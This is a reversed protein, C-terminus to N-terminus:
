SSLARRVTVPDSRRSPPDAFPEFEKELSELSRGSRVLELVKQRYEPPYPQRTRPPM